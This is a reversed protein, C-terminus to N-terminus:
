WLFVNKVGDTIAEFGQSRISWESPTGHGTMQLGVVGVVSHGADFSGHGDDITQRRVGSRVQTLECGVKPDRHVPHEADALHQYRETVQIPIFV